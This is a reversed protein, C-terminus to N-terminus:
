PSHEGDKDEFIKLGDTYADEGKEVTVSPQIGVVEVSRGDHYERYQTPMTICIKSHSLFFFGMNGLQCCGATPEGVTIAYPHYEFCDLSTEGSSGCRRDVLLVIPKKFAVDKEVPAEVIIRIEVDGEQGGKDAYGEIREIINEYRAKIKDVNEKEEMAVIKRRINNAFITLAEPSVNRYITKVPHRYDDYGYLLNALQWMITDDGGHNNRLDIIIGEVDNLHAKIEDLFGNWQQSEFPPFHTIGIVLIDKGEHTCIEIQWASSTTNRNEGVSPEVPCLRQERRKPSDDGFFYEGSPISAKLHNDPIRLLITDIKEAFLVTDIPEQITCALHELDDKVAQLTSAPIFGKGGYAHELAYLLLAIDEKAQQPTVKEPAPMRPGEWLLDKYTHHTAKRSSSWALVLFSGIIFLAILGKKHSYHM